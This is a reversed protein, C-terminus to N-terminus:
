ATLQKNCYNCIAKWEGCIREKKMELWVESTLKRTTPCNVEVVENEEDDSIENVSESPAKSSGTADSHMLFIPYCFVLVLHHCCIFSLLYYGKYIVVFLTWQM